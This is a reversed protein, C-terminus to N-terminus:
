GARRAARMGGVAARLPQGRARRRYPPRDRLSARSRTLV